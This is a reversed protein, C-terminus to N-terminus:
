NIKLETAVAGNIVRKKTLARHDESVAVNVTGSKMILYPGFQLQETRVPQVTQAISRQEHM